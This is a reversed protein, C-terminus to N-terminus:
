TIKTKLEIDVLDTLLYFYAESNGAMATLLLTLNFHIYISNVWNVM